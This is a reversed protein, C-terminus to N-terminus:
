RPLSSQSWGLKAAIQTQSIGHKLEIEIYNREESSPPKFAM